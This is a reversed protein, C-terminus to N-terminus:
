CDEEKRSKVPFYFRTSSNILDLSVLQMRTLYRKWWLYKQMHPGLAALLYYSYMVVHIFCNLMGAFCDSVVNSLFLFIHFYFFTMNLQIEGYFKKWIIYLVHSNFSCQFSCVFSYIAVFLDNEDVDEGRGRALSNM